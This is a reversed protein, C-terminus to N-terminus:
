SAPYPAALVQDRTLPTLRASEGPKRTKYRGGARKTERKFRRNPRSPVLHPPLTIEFTLDAVLDDLDPPSFSGPDSIRGQIAHRAHTFSIRTPDIEATDAAHNILRRIPQCCCLMAYIQQRILPPSKSRLVGAGGRISNELESFCTELQWRRAYASAAQEASLVRPGLIDTVLVFTESM